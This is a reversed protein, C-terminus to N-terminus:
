SVSYSCAVEYVALHGENLRVCTFYTQAGIMGRQGLIDDKTPTSAPIMNVNLANRGRLAVDGFAEQSLIVIPYVDCLTGATNPAGNSLRTNATNTTGAQLYPNLHPSSIFRYNEWSGLENPHIVQRNGYASVHTFNALARVDAELDTHLVAVFAAEIPKTAIKTSADLIGTIKMALNSHMSRAILRLMGATILGAISDRASVGAARFMNTSAKLQGWRVMEILLGMREGTLRKIEPPVDDEYLDEVRNTWRYSFGYEILSASIDQAIIQDAIPSEGESLRHTEPNVVWRNPTSATAGYPLWRRFVVTESSNKPHPKKVGFKGLVEQPVAHKLIEGKLRGIRAAQTTMTQAAM